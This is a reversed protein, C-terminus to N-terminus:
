RSNTVLSSFFLCHIQVRTVKALTNANNALAHTHSHAACASVCLHTHPKYMDSARLRYALCLLAKEALLYWSQFMSQRCVKSLDGAEWQPPLFFFLIPSFCRFPRFINMGSAVFPGPQNGLSLCYFFRSLDPPVAVSDCASISPSVPVCHRRVNTCM